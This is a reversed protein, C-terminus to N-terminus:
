SQGDDKMGGDNIISRLEELRRNKWYDRVGISIAESQKRRYEQDNWKEKSTNSIIDRTANKTNKIKNYREKKEADTENKLYNIIISDQKRNANIRQRYTPDDRYAKKVMESQKHREEASNFRKKQSISMKDKTKDSRPVGKTKERAKAISESGKKSMNHKKRLSNKHEETLPRRMKNKSEESSRRSLSGGKLDINYGNPCITNYQAIFKEEEEHATFVDHYFHLVERTFNDKGYKNIAKKLAKGSGLYGDNYNDTIHM